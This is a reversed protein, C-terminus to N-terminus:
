CPSDTEIEVSPFVAITPPGFSLVPSPAAHTNVRAPPAQLWCPSLSMPFPALPVGRWALETEREESPFVATM